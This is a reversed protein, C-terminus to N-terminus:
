SEGKRKFPVPVYRGDKLPIYVTDPDLRGWHDGDPGVILGEEPENYRPRGKTARAEDARTHCEPCLLEVDEPQESGLSRYHVHHLALSPSVQGCRQCRSGRQEIVKRKLTKWQAGSIYQHYRDPFDNRGRFMHYSNAREIVPEACEKCYRLHSNTPHRVARDLYREGTAIVKACGDGQCQHQKRATRWKPVPEGWM